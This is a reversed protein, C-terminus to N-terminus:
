KGSISHAQLSVFSLIIALLLGEKQASKGIYLSLLVKQPIVSTHFGLGNLKSNKSATKNTREIKHKM